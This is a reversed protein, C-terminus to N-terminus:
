INKLQKFKEMIQGADERYSRVIKLTEKDFWHSEYNDLYYHRISSKDTGHKVGISNLSEM